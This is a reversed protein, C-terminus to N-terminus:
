KQSLSKLPQQDTYWPDETSRIAKVVAKCHRANLEHPVIARMIRTHPRGLFARKLNTALVLNDLTGYLVTIPLREDLELIEALATQREITYQLSSAVPYWTAEDVMAQGTLSPTLRVLAQASRISWQKPVARLARYFRLYGADLFGELRKSSEQSSQTRYLPMAVLVLRKVQRPKSAAWHLSIISGMSHGVLTKRGWIGHWWLTWRVSRLHEQVTYAVHTPKPSAGHGLLDLTVCRYRSALEDIVPQWIKSDAALGHLFILTPGSGQSRFRLRYPLRLARHLWEPLVM